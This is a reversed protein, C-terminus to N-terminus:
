RPKGKSKTQESSEPLSEVGVSAVSVHKPDTNTLDSLEATKSDLWKLIEKDISEISPATIEVAGFEEHEKGIKAEYYLKFKIEM